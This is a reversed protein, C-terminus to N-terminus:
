WRHPWLLLSSSSSGLHMYFPKNKEPQGGFISIRENKKTLSKSNHDNQRKPKFTTIQRNINIIIIQFDIKKRQISQLYIRVLFFANKGRFGIWLIRYGKIEANKM